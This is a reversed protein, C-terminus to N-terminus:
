KKTNDILTQLRADLVEARSPNFGTKGSYGYYIEGTKTNVVSSVKSPAFKGGTPKVIGGNKIYELHEALGTKSDELAKSIISSKGIKDSIVDDSNNALSEIGKEAVEETVEESTEKVTKEVVEEVATNVGQTKIKNLGAKAGKLIIPVAIALGANIIGKIM